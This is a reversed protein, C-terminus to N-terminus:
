RKDLGDLMEAFVNKGRWGRRSRKKRNEYKETKSEGEGRRRRRKGRM